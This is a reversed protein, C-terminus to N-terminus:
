NSVAGAYCGGSRRRYSKQAPGDSKDVIRTRIGLALLQAALVLGTPGAGVGLVQCESASMSM